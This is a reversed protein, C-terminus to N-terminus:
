QALLQCLNIIQFLWFYISCITERCSLECNTLFSVFYIPGRCIQIDLFHNMPWDQVMSCKNLYICYLNKVPEVYIRCKCWVSQLWLKLWYSISSLRCSALNLDLGGSQRNRMTRKNYGWQVNPSKLITSLSTKCYRRVYRSCCCMLLFHLM